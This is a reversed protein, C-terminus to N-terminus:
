SEPPFVAFQIDECTYTDCGGMFTNIQDDVEGPIKPGHCRVVFHIEAADKDILGIPTNSVGPLPFISGSDDGEMLHGSFNGKGNSGAVHGAIYLVDAMVDPDFIDPEDCGDTCEGPINFVVAWLTYTYGPTLDTTMVNVTFGNGNRNLYATGVNVFAPLASFLYVLSSEGSMRANNTIDDQDDFSITNSDNLPSDQESCSIVMMLLLIFSASALQKM